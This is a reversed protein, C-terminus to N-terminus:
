WIGCRQAVDRLFERKRRYFEARSITPVDLLEYRWRRGDRCNNLVAERLKWSIDMPLDAGIDYAAQQIARMTRADRSNDLECMRRKKEECSPLVRALNGGPTKRDYGAIARLQERYRKEREAQGRVLYLAAQAVDRPIRQKGM